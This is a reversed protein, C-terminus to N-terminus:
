FIYYISSALKSISASGKASCKGECQVESRIRSRSRSRVEIESKYNCNVTSVLGYGACNGSWVRGKMQNGSGEVTNVLRIISQGQM